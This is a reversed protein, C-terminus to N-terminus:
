ASTHRFNKGGAGEARLEEGEPRRSLERLQAASCDENCRPAFNLYDVDIGLFKKDLRWRIPASVLPVLEALAADDGDSGFLEQV